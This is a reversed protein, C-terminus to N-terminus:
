KRKRGAALKAKHEETMPRSTKGKYKSGAICYPMIPYLPCAPVTCDVGRGDSYYGMCDYCKALIMQRPTLREGELHAIMEKRGKAKIGNQEIDKLMQDAKTM